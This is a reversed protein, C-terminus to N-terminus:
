NVRGFSNLPWIRDIVIGEISKKQVFGFERSDKSVDIHDGLVFYQNEPIRKIHQLQQAQYEELHIRYTNNFAARDGINLILENQQIIVADGPMGIVRKVLMGKEKPISFAIMEYRTIHTHKKVIVSDGNNLTPAMSTGNVQHIKYFVIIEILCLFFLGIFVYTKIKRDKKM